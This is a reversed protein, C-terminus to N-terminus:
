GLLFVNSFLFVLFLFRPIKQLYMQYGITQKGLDIQKQRQKLKQEPSLINAVVLKKNQEATKTQSDLEEYLIHSEEPEISVKNFELEEEELNNECCTKKENIKSFLTSFTTNCPTSSSSSSSLGQFLLPLGDRSSDLNPDINFESLTNLFNQEYGNESDSSDESMDAWSRPFLNTTRTTTAM